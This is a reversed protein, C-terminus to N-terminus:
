CKPSRGAGKSERFSEEGGHSQKKVQTQSYGAEVCTKKRREEM